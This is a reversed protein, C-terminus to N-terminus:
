LRAAVRRYVGELGTGRFNRTMIASLRLPCSGGGVGRGPVGSSRVFLEETRLLRHSTSLAKTNGKM